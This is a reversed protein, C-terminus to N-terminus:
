QMEESIILDLFKQKEYDSVLFRLDSGAQLIKEFIPRSLLYTPALQSFVCYLTANLHNSRIQKKSCLLRSLRLLNKGVGLHFRRIPM